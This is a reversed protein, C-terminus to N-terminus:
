NIYTFTAQVEVAYWDGRQGIETLNPNRMKRYHETSEHDVLFQLVMNALEYVRETGSSNQVHVTVVFQGTQMSQTVGIGAMASPFHDFRVDVWEDYTKPDFDVGPFGIQTESNWYTNFDTLLDDFFTQVDSM